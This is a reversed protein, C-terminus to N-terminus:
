FGSALGGGSLFRSADREGEDRQALIGPMFACMWALADGKAGIRERPLAGGDSREGAGADGSGETSGCPPRLQSRRSVRVPVPPAPKLPEARVCSTELM